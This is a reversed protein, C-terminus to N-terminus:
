RSKRTFQTANCKPCPPIHGTKHFHLVEGCEDCTLTGPSTIEGTRFETARRAQAELQMLELRTKDAARSFLELMRDEILELDMHLWDTLKRSSDKLYYGADQLDRKLYSSIEEAEEHTLEDLEVAQDRAHILADNLDHIGNEAHEWAAALREAMTEYAETLTEIPSENQKSM